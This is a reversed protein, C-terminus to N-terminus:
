MTDQNRVNPQVPKYTHAQSYMEQHSPRTVEDDFHLLQTNLLNTSRIKRVGYDNLGNVPVPCAVENSGFNMDGHKFLQDDM